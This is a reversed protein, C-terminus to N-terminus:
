EDGKENKVIITYTATAVPSNLYDKKIAIAKLTLNEKIVVPDKYLLSKEDPENGDVTYYIEADDPSATIVIETGEKVETEEPNFIPMGCQPKAVTYSAEVIDSNTCDKKMAIAKIVTDKEIVIGEKYTASKGTPKSGDTTYHIVAGETGCVIEVTSGSEVEGSEPYFVPNQVKPVIVEYEVSVIESAHTIAIAKITMDEEVTIPETYLTSETTPTSGDTTYYIKTDITDCNLEIKSGKEVPVKAKKEGSNPTFNVDDVHNNEEILEEIKALESEFKEKENYRVFISQQKMWQYSITQSISDSTVVELENSNYWTGKLNMFNDKVANIIYNYSEIDDFHKQMKSGNYFTVGITFNDLEAVKSIKLINYWIGNIDVFSEAIKEKEEFYEKSEYYKNQRRGDDYYFTLKLKADNDAIKQVNYFENPESM